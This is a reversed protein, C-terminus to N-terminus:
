RLSGLQATYDVEGKSTLEKGGHKGHAMEGCNEHRTHHTM